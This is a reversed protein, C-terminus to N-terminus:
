SVLAAAGRVSPMSGSSGGMASQRAHRRSDRMIMDRVLMYNLEQSATLQSARPEALVEDSILTEFILRREAVDMFRLREVVRPSIVISNEMITINKNM